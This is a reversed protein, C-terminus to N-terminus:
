PLKFQVSVTMIVPVPVGNIEATTYELQRVADIAAQDLQPISRLVRVDTVKGAPDINVELVVVGEVRAKRAEQPYVPKVDRIKAPTRIGSGARVADPSAGSGGAPRYQDWLTNLRTVGAAAQNLLAQREARDSTFDAKAEWLLAQAGVLFPDDPRTHMADELLRLGEDCHRRAEAPHDRSQRAFVLHANAVARIALVNSPDVRMWEEATELARPPNLHPPKAFLNVLENFLLGSAPHHTLGDRFAREADEARGLWQYVRALEVQLFDDTPRSAIAAKLEEESRAPRLGAPTITRSDGAAAPQAQAPTVLAGAVVIAFLHRYVNIPTLQRPAVRARGAHTTCGRRM